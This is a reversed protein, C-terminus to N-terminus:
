HGVVVRVSEVWFSTELIVMILEGALMQFDM